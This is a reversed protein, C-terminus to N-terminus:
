EIFAMNLNIFKIKAIVYVLLVPVRKQLRKRVKRARIMSSM